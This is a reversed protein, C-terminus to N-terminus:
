DNKPPGLLGLKVAAMLLGARTHVDFKLYLDKLHGRVTWVSRCVRDAIEEDTLGAALWQLVEAEAPSVCPAEKKPPELRNAWGGSPTTGSTM